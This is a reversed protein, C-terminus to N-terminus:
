ARLRTHSAQLRVKSHCGSALVEVPALDEVSLCCGLVLLMFFIDDFRQVRSADRGTSPIFHPHMAFPLHRGGFVSEGHGDVPLRNQWGTDCSMAFYLICRRFEEQVFWIRVALAPRAEVNDNRERICVHASVMRFRLQNPFM